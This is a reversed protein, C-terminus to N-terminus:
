HIAFSVGDIHAPIPDSQSDLNILLRIPKESPMMSIEDRQNCPHRRVVLILVGVGRHLDRDHLRLGLEQSLSAREEPVCGCGIAM